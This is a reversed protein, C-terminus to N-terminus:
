PIIYKGNRLMESSENYDILYQSDVENIDNSILRAMDHHYSEKLVTKYNNIVKLTDVRSVIESNIRGIIFEGQNILSDQQEVIRQEAELMPLDDRQNVKWMLYGQFILMLGILINTPTLYKM